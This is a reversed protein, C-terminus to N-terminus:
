PKKKAEIGARYIKSHSERDPKGATKAILKAGEEWDDFHVKIPMFSAKPKKM